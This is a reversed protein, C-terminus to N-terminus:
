QSKTSTAAEDVLRTSKDMANETTLEWAEIGARGTVECILTTPYRRADVM